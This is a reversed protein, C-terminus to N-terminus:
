LCPLPVQSPRPQCDLRIAPALDRYAPSRLVELIHVREAETLKNSPEPRPRAPGQAPPRRRRYLTARSRGALRCATKTSTVAELDDFTTDIM